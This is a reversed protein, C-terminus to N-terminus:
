RSKRWVTVFQASDLTYGFNDVLVTQVWNDQFKALPMRVAATWGTSVRSQDIVPFNRKIAELSTDLGEFPVFPQKHQQNIALVFSSDTDKTIRRM